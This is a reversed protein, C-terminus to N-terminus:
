ARAPATIRLLFSKMPEERKDDYPSSPPIAKRIKSPTSVDKPKWFNALYTAIAFISFAIMSIELQTVPLGTIGCVVVNLLLWTIQSVAIVKMLWDAKSKNEVEEKSLDFFRFPPNELVSAGAFLWPGPLSFQVNEEDTSFGVIGGMNVYYSHILTWIRTDHVPTLPISQISSNHIDRQVERSAELSRPQSTEPDQTHAPTNEEHEEKSIALNDKINTKALKVSKQEHIRQRAVVQAGEQDEQYNQPQSLVLIRSLQRMFFGYEVKWSIRKEIEYRRLEIRVTWTFHNKKRRIQEDLERLNDLALRLEWVAKSFVFEPFLVTIGM